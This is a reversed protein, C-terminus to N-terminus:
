NRGSRQTKNYNFALGTQTKQFTAQFKGEEKKMSAARKQVVKSKQQPTNNPYKAQAKPVSINLDITLARQISPTLDFSTPPISNLM